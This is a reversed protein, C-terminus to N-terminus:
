ADIDVSAVEFGDKIAKEYLEVKDFHMLIFKSKDLDLIDDYKIHTDYTETSIECYITKISEDNSLKRVYDIDKTDGTYYYKGMKDEFMIGFCQLKPAHITPKMNISFSLNVEEEHIFKFLKEDVGTLKLLNSLTQRYNEDNYIIQPVINLCLSSYWILVGLGAIHDYHTHTIAIYISKVDNFAGSNILKKTANECADIVLLSKKDKIYCCNGGLEVNIAGGIGIFNLKEM